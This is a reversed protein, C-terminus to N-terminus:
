DALQAGCKWCVEFNGPNSEGCAPCAVQGETDKGQEFGRILELARETDAEDELWVEPWAHVFPIEGVGGQANENFVRASVGAQGLLGAIIHADPLNAASYIRKM